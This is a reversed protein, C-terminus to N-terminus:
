FLTSKHVVLIFCPQSYSLSWSCPRWSLIFGRVQPLSCPAAGFYYVPVAHNIAQILGSEFYKYSCTEHIYLAQASQVISPSHLPFLPLERALWVFLASGAPTTRNGAFVSYRDPLM